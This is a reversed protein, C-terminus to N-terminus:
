PSRLTREGNVNRARAAQSHVVDGIRVSRDFERHSPLEEASRCSAPALSAVGRDLVVRDGVSATFVVEDRSQWFRFCIQDGPYVVGAFRCRLSLLDADFVRMLATGVMGYTALGHLIPREFGAQAAVNPDCHLPNRDGSLRYLLAARPSVRVVLEDDAARGPSSPVDTPPPPGGFGGDGRLLLTQRASAYVVESTADAIEREVIVVAGRGPGRDYLRTIHPTAVVSASPPLPHHFDMAQEAHVLRAFDVGFAPDRIWMGPSALTAAFTPLIKARSEILYDLDRQDLPDLGLGLGLAYLITQDPAYSQELREFRHGRLANANM